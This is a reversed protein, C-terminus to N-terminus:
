WSTTPTIDKSISYPVNALPPLHATNNQSLDSNNNQSLDSNINQSLDRIGVSNEERTANVGAGLMNEHIMAPISM